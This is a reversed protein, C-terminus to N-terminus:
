EEEFMEQKGIWNDTPCGALVMPSRSREASKWPLLPLPRWPRKEGARGKTNGVKCFIKLLNLKKPGTGNVNLISGRLGFLQCFTPFGSEGKQASIISDSAVAFTNSTIVTMSTLWTQYVHQSKAENWWPMTAAFSLEFSKISSAATSRVTRIRRRQTCIQPFVSQDSINICFNCWNTTM